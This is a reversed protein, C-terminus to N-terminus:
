FFTIGDDEPAANPEGRHVQHEEPMTYSQQLGAQLRQVATADPWCDNLALATARLNGVVHEVRQTVRDQFQLGVLADSVQARIGHAGARLSQASAALEGVGQGLEDLIQAVEARCSALLAAREARLQVVAECADRAAGQSATVRGQMRQADDRSQQALQRVEQAVVAFGRGAEGARAAEIRANISLMGTVQATREVASADEGLDAVVVAFREIVQLLADARGMSAEIRDLLAQLRRAALDIAGSMGGEGVCAQAATEAVQVSATLEREAASFALSLADISGRGLDLSAALQAQWVDFLKAM